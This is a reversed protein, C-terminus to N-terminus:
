CNNKISTWLKMLRSGFSLEQATTESAMAVVM